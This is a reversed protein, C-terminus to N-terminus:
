EGHDLYPGDLKLALKQISESKPLDVVRKIVDHTYDIRSDTVKTSKNLELHAWYQGDSTRSVEVHGGPFKIIGTSPEPSSKNGKFLVTVADQSHVVKARAM